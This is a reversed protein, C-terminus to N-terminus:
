FIFGFGGSLSHYKSFSYGISLNIISLQLALGARYRLNYNSEVDANFDLTGSEGYSDTYNYRYNIKTRNYEYSIGTYPTININKSGITKSFFLGTQIGYSSFVDGVNLKQAFFGFSMDIIPKKPHFWVMPNHQIGAGFYFVKGYQAGLNIPPILRFSLKTGALTGITLQLAALPIVPFNIGSIKSDEQVPDLIINKMAGNYNIMITDGPYRLKVTQESSGIITPGWVNVSFLRGILSDKVIERYSPDISELIRDITKSTLKVDANTSFTRDYDKFMTGMGIISIEMDFGKMIPKPARQVWGSNLNSTTGEIFPSAYSELIAPDLNEIKSQSLLVSNMCILATIICILRLM